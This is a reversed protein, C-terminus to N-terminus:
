PNEHLLRNLASPKETLKRIELRNQKRSSYTRNAWKYLYDCSKSHLESYNIGFQVLFIM